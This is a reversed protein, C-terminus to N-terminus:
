SPFLTVPTESSILPSMGTHSTLPAPYNAGINGLVHRPNAVNM